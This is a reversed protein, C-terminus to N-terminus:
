KFSEVHNDNRQLIYKQLYNQIMIRVEPHYRSLMQLQQGSGQHAEVKACTVGCNLRNSVNELYM